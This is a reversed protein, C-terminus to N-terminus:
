IEAQMWSFKIFLRIWDFVFNGKFKEKLKKIGIVFFQGKM